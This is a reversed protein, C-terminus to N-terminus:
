PSEFMVETGLTFLKVDEQNTLTFGFLDLDPSGNSRLKNTVKCGKIPRGALLSGPTAEFNRAELRRGFVMGRSEVTSEVIFRVLAM